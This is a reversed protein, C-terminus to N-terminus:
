TDYIHGKSLGLKIFEVTLEVFLILENFLLDWKNAVLISLILITFLGHFKICRM